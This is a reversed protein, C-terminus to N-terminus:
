RIMPATKDRFEGSALRSFYSRAAQRIKPALLLTSVMTPIAMLAFSGDIFGIATELSVVAAIVICVLFIARYIPESKSGFLYAFCQSGYFSYTFITTVGFALVCISIIVLGANGLTAGFAQATLTVGGADSSEHVGAILIILATATCIILTDIIPGLMAVLGERIPENTRAAGHALAETGIGAENSFAGRQVGYLIVTGLAGGGVANGTFAQVLIDALIGPVVGINMAIILAASALYIVAMLPVIRTAVKAIRQLGGFMIAATLVALICGAVFDFAFHDGNAALLGAPIAIVERSIQVLQNTQFAPLCGILGAVCFLKALWHWRPKLATKIVWMPGGRVRGDDDTGRFMVAASCTFFKTAIGLIATVWMWFIAGSGGVAIAVAVGGINGMGITGALAASLAQFHSIEGPGREHDFRGRILDWAHPLYRFPAFRSYLLFFLGGGLLLVLLPYGWAYDAFTTAIIQLSDLM